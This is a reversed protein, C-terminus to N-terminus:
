FLLCTERLSSKKTKGSMGPKTRGKHSTGEAEEVGSGGDAANASGKKQCDSTTMATVTIMM